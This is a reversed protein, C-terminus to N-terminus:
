RPTGSSSPSPRTSPWRATKSSRGMGGLGAPEEDEPDEGRPGGDLELPQPDLLLEHLALPAIALEVLLCGVGVHRDAAISPEEADIM